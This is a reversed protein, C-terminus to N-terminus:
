SDPSRPDAFSECARAFGEGRPAPGASRRMLEQAADGSVPQIVQRNNALTGHRQTGPSQTVRLSGMRSRISWSRAVSRTANSWCHYHARAIGPVIASLCAVDITGITLRGPLCASSNTSSTGCNGIRPGRSIDGDAWRYIIDVNKATKTVTSEYGKCLPMARNRMAVQDHQSLGGLWGLLPRKRAAQGRATLPWVTAGGLLTIFDRRKV